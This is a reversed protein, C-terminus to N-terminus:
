DRLRNFLTSTTALATHTQMSLHLYTDNQATYCSQTPDVPFHLCEFPSDELLLIQEIASVNTIPKYTERSVSDKTPDVDHYQIMTSTYYLYQLLVRTYELRYRCRTVLWDAELRKVIAISYSSPLCIRRFVITHFMNSRDDNFRIRDVMPPAIIRGAVLLARFCTDDPFCTVRSRATAMQLM